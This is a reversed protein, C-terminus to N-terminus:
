KLQSEEEEIERLKNQLDAKQKQLHKSKIERMGDKKIHRCKEMDEKSSASEVCSAMKDLTAKEININELVHSKHEALRATHDKQEGDRIAFSNSYLGLLLTLLTTYFTIKNKM